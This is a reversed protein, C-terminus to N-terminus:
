KKGYNYKIIRFEPKDTIGYIINKATDVAIDFLPIDLKFYRKPNGEWDFTFLQNSHYDDDKLLKGRYLVFVENGGNCISAYCIHTRDKYIKDTVIGNREIMDAIADFQDPGQLRRILNGTFDYVDIVDTYFYAAIIRDKYDTASLSWYKEKNEKYGAIQQNVSDIVNGDLDCFAYRYPNLHGLYEVFIVSDSLMIVREFRSKTKHHEVAHPIKQTLFDNLLYKDLSLRQFDYIWMVTDKSNNIVMTPAIKDDPGQGYKLCQNIHKNNNLNFIDYIHDTEFNELILLSDKIMLSAPKWVISDFQMEEGSLEIIEFDNITFQKSSLNTKKQCSLVTIAEFLLVFFYVSHKM